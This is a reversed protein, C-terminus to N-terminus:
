SLNQTLDRTSVKLHMPTIFCKGATEYILSAGNEFSVVIKHSSKDGQIETMALPQDELKIQGLLSLPQDGRSFVFCYLGGCVIRILIVSFGVLTGVQASSFM